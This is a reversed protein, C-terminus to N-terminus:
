SHFRFYAADIFDWDDEILDFVLAGLLLYAATLGLGVPLSFDFDGSENDVEPWKKALLKKLQKTLWIGVQVGLDLQM